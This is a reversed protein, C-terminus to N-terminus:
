QKAGIIIKWVIVTNQVISLDAQNITSYTTQFNVKSLIGSVIVTLLTLLIYTTVPHMKIRKLRMKKRKNM